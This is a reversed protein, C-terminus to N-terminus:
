ESRYKNLLALNYNSYNKDTSVDKIIRINKPLIYKENEGKLEIEMVAKNEWFPYIDIEYYTFNESLCYRIKEITLNDKDNNKLAEYEEKTIKYEVEEKKFGSITKKMTLYYSYVGNIGRKRIRKRVGNDNIYSQSIFVKQANKISNLMNIDPYEIIFKKEIEYHTDGGIFSDIELFLENEGLSSNIMRFHNHGTFYNIFENESSNGYYFVADFFSFIKNKDETESITDYLYFNVDSYKEKILEIVKSAEEGTICINCQM